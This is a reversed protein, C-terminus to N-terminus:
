QLVRMGGINGRFSCSSDKGTYTGVIGGKEAQMGTFTAAGTALNTCFYTGAIQGIQGQQTYEGSYECVPFHVILQGAQEKITFAGVETTVLNNRTPDKCDYTIDSTAGIYSGALTQAAFTFRGIAKVVIVSNVNYRLQAHADDGFELTAQGVLQYGLLAPNYPTGIAPGTTQYLDGGYIRVGNAGTSQYNFTASYWIPQNGPGYVFFTGFLIDAQQSINLGWGPENPASWLDSYNTFTTATTQMSTGTAIVFLTTSMFKLLRAKM